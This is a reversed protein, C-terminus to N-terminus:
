DKKAQVAINKDCSKDDNSTHLWEFQAWNYASKTRIAIQIKFIYSGATNCSHPASCSYKTM